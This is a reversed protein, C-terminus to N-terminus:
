YWPSTVFENYISRARRAVDGAAVKDLKGLNVLSVVREGPTHVIAVVEVAAPFDRAMMRDLQSCLQEPRKNPTNADLTFEVSDPSRPNEATTDVVRGDTPLM